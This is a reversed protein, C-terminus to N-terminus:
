PICFATGIGPVEECTWPKVKPYRAIGSFISDHATSLPERLLFVLQLQQKKLVCAEHVFAVKLM